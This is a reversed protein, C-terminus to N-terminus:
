GQRTSQLLGPNGARPEILQPFGMRLFNGLEGRLRSTTSLSSALLPAVLNESGLLVPREPEGTDDHLANLVGNPVQDPNGLPLMLLYLERIPLRFYEHYIRTVTNPCHRLELGQKDLAQEWLSNQNLVFLIIM